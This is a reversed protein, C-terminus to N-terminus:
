DDRLQNFEEGALTSIVAKANRAAMRSSRRLDQEKADDAKKTEQDISIELPYIQQVARELRRKNGNVITELAVGRVIEDDKGKLLKLVRGKKWMGRQSGKNEILVIDGPKVMYSSETKPMKPKHYERLGILYEKSWRTWMQNLLSEIHKFRTALTEDEELIEEPIDPLQQLRHGFILHNPTLAEEELEEGQYCLPRNNLIAQTKRLVVEMESFRLFAKGLTKRLIVKTLGVMKEFWGGWWPALSLNFQWTLFNSQLYAQVEPHEFLKDLAVATTKFTTANDSVMLNPMGWFAAFKELAMRFVPGTLDPTFELHVARTTACTFLAIYSKTRGEDTKVYLPGAFDVGTHQFPRSRMVRMEPLPAMGPATLHKASFVKCVYCKMLSSKVVQRGRPIWFESRIEALTRGVKEHGATKHCDMVVLETFKNRAPLLIPHRQGFTLQANKLRGGCRILGDEHKYAGLNQSRSKFEKEEVLEQQVSKVWATRAKQLEEATIHGTKKHRTNRCNNVFRLLRVTVRLLKKLTSFREIDITMSLGPTSGENALLLNPSREECKADKTPKFEEHQEPWSEKDQKLFDPGEWWLQSHQLKSASAGRTGLDSPNENTPCHQWIAGPVLKHIEKVRNNVFPKWVGKNAIWYLATISDLWIYLRSTSWKKLAQLVSNALKAGMTASLLELRPITLKKLPALRCKATLLRSKVGTPTDVVTYVAACYGVGSADCFVHLRCDGLSDNTQGVFRPMSLYKLEHLDGLWRRFQKEDEESLTDDWSKGEACLKQLMLRAKLIVPGVVGLPDYVAALCSLLARKTTTEEPQEIQLDVKLVDGEPEWVVGLVKRQENTAEDSIQKCLEPDNSYWKRLCFGGEQFVRQLKEKRQLLEEPNNGGSIYDDVYLSTEVDEVFEADEDSYKQLHHRITASLIYPSPGAGFIARTFRLEQLEPIDAKIDKVWLFRLADRDVPDIEIQLFAQKIDVIPHFHFSLAM